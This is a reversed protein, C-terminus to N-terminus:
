NKRAHKKRFQAPTQKAWRKFASQFNEAHRFGILDAVEEMSLDTTALYEKALSARVDGLIKQYTTGENQLKRRLSRPSMHVKQAIRELGPCTRANALLLNRIRTVLGSSHELRHLMHSCVEECIEATITNAQLPRRTLYSRPFEMECYPQGFEVPCGFATEYARWHAPAQYSVKISTPKVDAALIGKMISQVSAWWVELAYPFLDGLLLTDEARLIVSDDSQYM